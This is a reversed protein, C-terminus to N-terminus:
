WVTQAQVQRVLQEYPGDGLRRATDAPVYVAEGWTTHVRWTQVREFGRDKLFADIDGVLGCGEYLEEWNVELRLCGLRCLLQEAGRLALLEAGQIDMCLYNFGDLGCPHAAAITDLRRAPVELSDRQEIEPYIDRHRGLKLISGSADSSTRHFTVAGDRECAAANVLAVGPTAAHRAQLRQFIDPDVEVLLIDAFGLRHYAEAEQGEHAGVHIAGKPPLGFRHLVQSPSMLVDGLLKYSERPNVGSQFARLAHGLAEPGRQLRNLAFALNHSARGDDPTVALYLKFAAAAQELAGSGLFAGALNDLNARIRDRATEPLGAQLAARYGDLADGLRGALHHEVAANFLSFM